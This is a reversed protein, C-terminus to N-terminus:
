TGQYDGASLSTGQLFVVSIVMGIDQFNQQADSLEQLFLRSLVVKTIIKAATWIILNQCNTWVAAKLCKFLVLQWCKACFLESIKFIRTMLTFLKSFQTM